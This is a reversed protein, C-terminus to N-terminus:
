SVTGKAGSNVVLGVLALCSTTIRTWSRTSPRRSLAFGRSPMRWRMSGRLPEWCHRWCFTRRPCKTTRCITVFVNKILPSQWTRAPTSVSVLLVRVAMMAVCSPFLARDVFFFDFFSNPMGTRLSGAAGTAVTADMLVVFMDKIHRPLQCFYLEPNGSVPNTQILIKGLSCDKVTAQLAHDMTMGARFISVGCVPKALAVGDIRRGCALTVAPAPAYPLYAM